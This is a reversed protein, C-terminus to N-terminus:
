TEIKRNYEGFYQEELQKRKEVADEFNEFLGGEVLKGNYRLQVRWKTACKYVGKYGSTNNKRKGANMSNQQNTVWRLNVARNDTRVGNIHDVQNQEPDRKIIFAQAVLRHIKHTSSKNFKSLRVYLYGRNDVSSKRVCGKYKNLSRVQGFNSVEYLIQYDIVSKWIEKEEAM